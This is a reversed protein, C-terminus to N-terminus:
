RSLTPLLIVLQTGKRKAHSKIRLADDFVNHVKDASLVAAPSVSPCAGQWCHLSIRKAQGIRGSILSLTARWPQASRMGFRIMRVPSGSVAHQCSFANM